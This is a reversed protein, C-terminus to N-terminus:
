GWIVSYLKKNENELSMEKKVYNKVKEEWIKKQTLTATIPPDIPETLTPIALTEIATKM